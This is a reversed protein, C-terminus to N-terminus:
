PRWAFSDQVDGGMPVQSVKVAPASGDPFGVYLESVGDTDQDATYALRSGDPSWRQVSVNGNAVLPGNVKVNGGGTPLSTYLEIVGLTDQIAIYAIRSNDPAWVGNGAGNDMIVDDQGGGDLDGVAIIEPSAGSVPAWGAPNNNYWAWVGGGSFSFVADDQGSGDLDGVAMIDPSLGTIGSWAAADSRM